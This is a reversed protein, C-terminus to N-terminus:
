LACFSYLFKIAEATHLPLIMISRRFDRALDAVAVRKMVFSIVNMHVLVLAPSASLVILAHKCSLALLAIYLINHLILRLFLSLPLAASRRLNFHLNHNLTPLKM